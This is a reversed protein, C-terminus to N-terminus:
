WAAKTGEPTGSGGFDAGTLDAGTADVDTLVAEELRVGRLSAGALVSGRLVARSLDAGDLVVRAWQLRALPEGVWALIAAANAAAGDSVGAGWFWGTLGNGSRAVVALLTERARAMPSGGPGEHAAQWADAIFQLVEPEDQIRRGGTMSLAASARAVRVGLPTDGAGAAALLVLRACFYEMLSKHIFQARSGALQLPCTTAFGRIAADVSAIVEGELEHRRRPPAAIYAESARIDQLQPQLLWAEAAEQVAKWASDSDDLAVALGLEPRRLMEGALLASLLEFQTVVPAAAPAPKSRARYSAGAGQEAGRVAEEEPMRAMGRQFWQGVFAEYLHYRTVRRLPGSSATQAPTPLAEVFLKLLFPNRTLFGLSRFATIGVLYEHPDACLSAAHGRVYTEVQLPRM